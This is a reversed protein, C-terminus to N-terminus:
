RTPFNGKLAESVISKVKDSFGKNLIWRLFNPDNKVMQRLTIGTKPGFNIVVENEEWRLKGDPDVKDPNKPNCLDGLESINHPLDQYHKLQGAIVKFTAEADAFASHANELNEECYFKLASTLNRPERAHYIRLADVIHVDELHWYINARRFEERLIPVDFKLLGFGGLDCDKFFNYVEEAVDAFIPEGKLAENTIGHITIVNDSMKCEPNIRQLYTEIHGDPYQKVAGIEIVRDVYPNVGTSELDFVIVPRELPIEIAKTTSSLTLPQKELKTTEQDQDSFLNLKDMSQQDLLDALKAM